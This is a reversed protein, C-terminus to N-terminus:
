RADRLEVIKDEVLNILQQQSNVSLKQYIHMIHTRATGDSIVLANAIHQANRGRALYALVERERRTLGHEAAVEDCADLFM